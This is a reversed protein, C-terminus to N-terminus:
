TTITRVVFRAKKHTPSVMSQPRAHRSAGGGSGVRKREQARAREFGHSRGAPCRAGHRVGAPPPQALGLAAGRGRVLLHGALLLRGPDGPEAADAAVLEEALDVLLVHVVVEVERAQLLLHGVVVEREVRDEVDVRRVGLQQRVLLLLRDVGRGLQEVAEDV